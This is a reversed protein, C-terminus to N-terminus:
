AAKECVVMWPVGFRDTVMGGLVQSFASSLSGIAVITGAATMTLGRTQNLYLLFFPGYIAFAFMGLFRVTIAIWVGSAFDNFRFNMFSHKTEM